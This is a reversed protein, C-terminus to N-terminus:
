WYGEYKGPKNFFSNKGAVGSERKLQIIDNRVPVVWGTLHTDKQRLPITWTYPRPRTRSLQSWYRSSTRNIESATVQSWCAADDSRRYVYNQPWRTSPQMLGQDGDTRGVHVSCSSINIRTSRLYKRGSESRWETIASPRVDHLEHPM